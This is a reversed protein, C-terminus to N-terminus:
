LRQEKAKRSKETEDSMIGEKSKYSDQMESSKITLSVIDKKMRDLMHYYSRQFMLEFDHEEMIM